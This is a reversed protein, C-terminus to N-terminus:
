LGKAKNVIKRMHIAANQVENTMLWSQPANNFALEMIECAELLEPSTAVLQANSKIEEIPQMGGGVEGIFTNVHGEDVTSIYFGHSKIPQEDFKWPGLTHTM